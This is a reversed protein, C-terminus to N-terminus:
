CVLIIADFTLIPLCSTVSDLEDIAVRCRDFQVPMAMGVHAAAPICKQHISM